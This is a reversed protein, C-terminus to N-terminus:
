AVIEGEGVASGFWGALEGKVKEGEVAGKEMGMLGWAFGEDEEERWDVKVAEKGGVELLDKATGWSFRTENGWGFFPEMNRDLWPKADTPYGSGWGGKDTSIQRSCPQPLGKAYEQWCVELAADRTVKACVSAASVCPYLSDAKKAVTISINPFLRELRKQYSAPDGITDIYIETVRVGRALVEQILQITADMAQQNLNYTAGARLQNASIDRASMVRVAWGCSEFLPTSPTCLSQVLSSRFAATLLKSDNFGHSETLLSTSLPLPLYFAGYVMPGIVPGRGAEDVGLVCPQTLGALLSQPLASHHTYSIGSLLPSPHISPLLFASNSSTEQSSIQPSPDTATSAESNEM